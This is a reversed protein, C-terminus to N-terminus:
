VIFVDEIDINRAKLEKEITKMDPDDGDGCIDNIQRCLFIIFEKDTM